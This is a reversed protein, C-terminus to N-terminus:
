GRYHKDLYQDFKVVWADLIESRALLNAKQTARRHVIGCYNAQEWEQMQKSPLLHSGIGYIVVAYAKIFSRWETKSGQKPKKVNRGFNVLGRGCTPCDGRYKSFQKCIICCSTDRQIEKYEDIPRKHQLAAKSKLHEVINTAVGNEDRIISIEVPMGVVAKSKTM